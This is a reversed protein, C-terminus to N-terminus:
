QYLTNQGQDVGQAEVDGHPLEHVCACVRVCVCACVCVCMCVCVCVHVCVCACLLYVGGGHYVDGTDDNSEGYKPLPTTYQPEEAVEVSVVHHKDGESHGHGANYSEDHASTHEIHCKEKTSPQYKARVMRLYQKPSVM